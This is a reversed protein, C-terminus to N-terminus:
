QGAPDALRPLHHEFFLRAVLEGRTGVGTKEFISKLHDQVTWQSLFLRESIAATSFGQTVLQTIARERATLGYADAILPALETPRVPELVVVVAGNGDDLLSGQVRLWRGSTAQVRASADAVVEGTAARRALGAVAALVGSAAQGPETVTM